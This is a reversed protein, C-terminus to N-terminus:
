DSDQNSSLSPFATILPSLLGSLQLCSIFEIQILNHQQQQQKAAAAAAATTQVHAPKLFPNV